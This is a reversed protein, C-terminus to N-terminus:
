KRLLFFFVKLISGKRIRAIKIIKISPSNYKKNSFGEEM